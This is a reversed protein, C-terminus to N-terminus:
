GSWVIVQRICALWDQFGDLLDSSKKRVDRRTKEDGALCYIGIVYSLSSILWSFLIFIFNSLLWLLLLLHSQAGLDPGVFM